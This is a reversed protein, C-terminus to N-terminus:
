FRLVLFTQKNSGIKAFTLDVSNWFVLVYLLLHVIKNWSILVKNIYSVENHKCKKEVNMDTQKYPQNKLERQKM